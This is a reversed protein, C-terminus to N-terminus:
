APNNQRSKVRAYALSGTDKEDFVPEFGTVNSKWEEPLCLLNNDPHFGPDSYESFFWWLSYNMERLMKIMEQSRDEFNNEVFLVPRYKLITQRAGKIVKIEMREVDIKILNCRALGLSDLTILRVEDWFKYGEITFSGASATETPDM